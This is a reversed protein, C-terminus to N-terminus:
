GWFPGCLRAASPVRPARHAATAWPAADTTTHYGEGVPAASRETSSGHGGADAWDSPM